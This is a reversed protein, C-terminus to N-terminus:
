LWSQPPNNLSGDIPLNFAIFPMKAKVGMFSNEKKSASGNMLLAFSIYYICGMIQNVMPLCFGGHLLM